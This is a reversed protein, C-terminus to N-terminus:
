QFLPFDDIPTPLIAGEIGLYNLLQGALRQGLAPVSHESIASTVTTM